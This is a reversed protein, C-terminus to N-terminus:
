REGRRRRLYDRFGTGQLWMGLAAVAAVIVILVVLGFGNV